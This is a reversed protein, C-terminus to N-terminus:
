CRPGDGPRVCMCIGSGGNEPRCPCTARPDPMPTLVGGWGNRSQPTGSLLALTRQLADIVADKKACEACSAIMM